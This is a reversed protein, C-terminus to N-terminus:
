KTRDFGCPEVNPRATPLRAQSERDLWRSISERSACIEIDMVPNSKKYSRCANQSTDFWKVQLRLDKLIADSRKGFACSLEESYEGDVLFTTLMALYRDAEHRRSKALVGVSTSWVVPANGAVAATETRSEVLANRANQFATHEVTSLAFCPSAHLGLTLSWLALRNGDFSNRNVPRRDIHEGLECELRSQPIRQAPKFDRSHRHHM